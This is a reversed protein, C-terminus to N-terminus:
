REETQQSLTGWSGRVTRVSKILTKAGLINEGTFGEQQNKGSQLSLQPPLPAINQCQYWDLNKKFWFKINKEECTQWVLNLM